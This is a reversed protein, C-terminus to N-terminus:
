GNGDGMQGRSDNAALYAAPYPQWARVEDRHIFWLPRRGEYSEARDHTVTGDALSVIVRASRWIGTHAAIPTMEPWDTRWLEERAREAAHLQTLMHLREQEAGNRLLAVEADREALQQLLAAYDSHEVYDGGPDKHMYGEDWSWRAVDVRQPATM